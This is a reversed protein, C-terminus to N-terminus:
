RRTLSEIVNGGIIQNGVVHARSSFNLGIYYQDLIEGDLVELVTAVIWGERDKLYQEVTELVNEGIGIVIEM